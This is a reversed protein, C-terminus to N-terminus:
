EYKSIMEMIKYLKDVDLEYLLFNIEKILALKNEKDLSLDLYKNYNRGEFVKDGCIYGIDYDELTKCVFDLNKLPFATRDDIIKYNFIYNIIASDDDYCYYFCGGKRIKVKKNMKQKSNM